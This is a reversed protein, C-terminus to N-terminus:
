RGALQAALTQAKEALTNAFVLNRDRLADRAQSIFGMALDYQSRADANLARYDVRNLTATARSLTDRITREVQAEREPPTTQLTVPPQRGDEPPKPTEPIPPDVRPPEPRALQPQQPAAPQPPRPPRPAPAPTPEEIPNAPLPEPQATEVNRPPPTPVELPPLEPNVRAQARVCGTLSIALLGSLVLASLASKTM